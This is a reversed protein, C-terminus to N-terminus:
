RMYQISYFTDRSSPDPYLKKSKGVVARRVPQQLCVRVTLPSYLFWNSDLSIWRASNIFQHKVRAVIERNRFNRLPGMVVYLRNHDSDAQWVGIGAVM